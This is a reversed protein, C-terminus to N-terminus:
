KRVQAPVARIQQEALASCHLVGCAELMEVPESAEASFKCGDTVVGTEAADVLVFSSRWSWLQRALLLTVRRGDIAQVYGAMVGQDRSRVIAYRLGPPADAPAGPVRVYEVGDVTIRDKM